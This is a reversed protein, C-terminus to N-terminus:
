PVVEFNPTLRAPLAELFVAALDLDGNLLCAVAAAVSKDLGRAILAGGAERVGWAPPDRFYFFRVQGWYGPPVRSRREMEIKVGYTIAKETLLAQYSRQFARAQPSDEDRRRRM